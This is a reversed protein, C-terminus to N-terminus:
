RSQEASRLLAVNVTVVLETPVSLEAEMEADNFPIWDAFRVTVEATRVETENVGTETTPPPVEAPFTVRVLAAGAPPATTVNDLLLGAACTGAVAM